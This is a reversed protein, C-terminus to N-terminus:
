ILIISEIPNFKFGRVPNGFIDKSVWLILGGETRPRGSKWCRWWTASKGLVDNLKKISRWIIPGIFGIIELAAGVFIVALGIHNTLVRFDKLSADFTAQGTDIPPSPNFVLILIGAFILLAGTLM